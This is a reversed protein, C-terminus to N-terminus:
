SMEAPKLGIMLRLRQLLVWSQFKLHSRITQAIRAKSVGYMRQHLVAPFDVARYGKFLAKVLLETGALFDNSEFRVNKIVASRYARFLCTYTYIHWDVLIRYILSSGRSLVLRYAPVGVVNGEPHYPSATVIDVGPTLYALLAPIESFKYTGDSDVTVLIDGDAQTLGTRIAAGLGLNTEHKIFKFEVKSQDQRSFTENLRTYTGDRSGDDVFIIEALHVEEPANKWGQTLLAEVVPLLEDHLKTVNEAENYCPVIISLKM